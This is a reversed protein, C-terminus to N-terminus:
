FRRAVEIEIFQSTENSQESDVTSNKFSGSVSTRGYKWNIGVKQDFGQTVGDQSSDENRYQLVAILETTQSLRLTTNISARDFTVENNQLKFEVVERSLEAAIRSALGIRRAYLVQVRNLSFPDFTSDRDNYEYRATFGSREYEVGLLMDDLDNLTVLAPDGSRLDQTVKNFRSYFAFGELAGDTIAYRFSANLNTTDIDNGPDPGVDYSVSVSQGNILAGGIISRLEVRDAFVTASYDIGEIYTPFGGVATVVLSTAIVNRRAIITAFGDNIRYIENVIRVTSGRDSNTQSNFAGGVSAELRGLPVEKGYDFQVSAFLEESTFDELSLHQGGVSVTSALSDFLRHIAQAQGRLQLQSQDRVDLQDVFTQYRTQFTDSHRLTLLEDWRIRRQEQDGGQDYFRLSSRLEHPVFEGGFAQTHVLSLDHRDYDDQFSGQNEDIRDFVYSADLRSTPSLRINSMASFSQQTVNSDIDDFGGELSQERQYLRFTTGANETQWRTSVGYETTTQEISGAFARDLQEQERRAYVDTPAKSTGLILANLDFFTLFNDESQTLGQATSDAEINELGLQVTGTLDFLNRHGIIAEGDLDLLYRHRSETDKQTPQGSTELTDETHQYRYSLGGGWRILKFGSWTERPVGVIIPGGDEPDAAIVTDITMEEIPDATVAADSAVDGPGSASARSAADGQSTSADPPPATGEKASEHSQGFAMGAMALLTILPTPGYSRRM